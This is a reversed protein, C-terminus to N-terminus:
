TVTSFCFMLADNLCSYFAYLKCQVSIYKDNSLFIIRVSVTQYVNYKGFFFEQRSSYKWLLLFTVPKQSFILCQIHRLKHSKTGVKRRILIPRSRKVIPEFPEYQCQLDEPDPNTSQQRPWQTYQGRNVSMYTKNYCTVRYPCKKFSRAKVKCPLGLINLPMEPMNKPLTYSNWGRNPDKGNKM